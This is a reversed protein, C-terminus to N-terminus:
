AASVLSLNQEYFPSYTNENKPEINYLWESKMCDLGFDKLKPESEHVENNYSYLEKRLEEKDSSAFLEDLLDLSQQLSNMRYGKRM